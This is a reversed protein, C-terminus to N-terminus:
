GERKGSTREDEIVEATTGDKQKEEETPHRYQLFSALDVEGREEYELKLSRLIAFLFFGFVMVTITQAIGVMLPAMSFWLFLLLVSVFTGAAIVLRENLAFKIMDKM